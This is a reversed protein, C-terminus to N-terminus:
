NYHDQNNTSHSKQKVEDDILSLEFSCGQTRDGEYSADHEHEDLDLDVLLHTEDLGFVLLFLGKFHLVQVLICIKGEVWVQFLIRLDSWVNWGQCVCIVDVGLWIISNIFSLLNFSFKFSM